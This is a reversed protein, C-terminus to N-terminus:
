RKNEEVQCITMKEFSKVYKSFFIIFSKYKIVDELESIYWFTEKYSNVFWLKKNYLINTSFVAKDCLFVILRLGFVRHFTKKFGIRDYMLRAIM